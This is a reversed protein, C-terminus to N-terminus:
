FGHKDNNIGTKSVLTRQGADVVLQNLPKACTHLGIGSYGSYTLVVLSLWWVTSNCIVNCACQSILHDLCKSLPMVM